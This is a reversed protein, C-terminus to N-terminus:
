ATKGCSDHLHKVLLNKQLVPTCCILNIQKTTQKTDIDIAIKMYAKTESSSDSTRDVNQIVSEMGCATSIEFCGGNLSREKALEM